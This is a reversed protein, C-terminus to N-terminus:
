ELLSLELNILNQAIKEPDLPYNGDAIEQKISEVKARDIEPVNKLEQQLGSVQQSQASLSVTDESTAQSASSSETQDKGVAKNSNTNVSNSTTRSIPNIPDNM